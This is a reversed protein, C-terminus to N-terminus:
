DYPRTFRSNLTRANIIPGFPRGICKFWCIHRALLSLAWCDYTIARCCEILRYNWNSANDSCSKKTQDVLAVINSALPNLKQAATFIACIWWFPKAMLNKLRTLDLVRFQDWETVIVLADAGAAAAYPDACFDLFPLELKAQDMGEPDFASIKAGGDRLAQAIALSPADRMDDTNPKFTLGLMAIRKGRVSGGVADVVKRAMARKRRDNVAITTEILSLPREYDNATKVLAVADKPFCSGGFGPGSNLFKSGIRKDLGIVRAVDQVNAGWRKVLTQWKM